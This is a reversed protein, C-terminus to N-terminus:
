ANPSSIEISFPVLDSREKRRATTSFFKVRNHPFQDRVSKSIEGKMDSDQLLMTLFGRRLSGGKPSALSVVLDRIRKLDKFCQDKIWTRKVEIAYIPRDQDDFLVIDM